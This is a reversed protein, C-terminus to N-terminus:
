VELPLFSVLWFTEEIEPNKLVQLKTFKIENM